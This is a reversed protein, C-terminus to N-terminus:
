VPMGVWDDLLLEMNIGAAPRLIRDRTFTRTATRDQDSLYDVPSKGDVRALMLIPLMSLARREFADLPEWEVCLKYASRFASIAATIRGRLSGFARAKLLLHTLCFAYDFAPDGYTACEADLVVVGRRGGVLINKPSFDGHVLAARANALQRAVESIRGGLDPHRHAVASFFPEIRLAEFHQHNQFRSAIDPQGATAGHLVALARGAAAAPAATDSGALLEAKWVPHDEAGLYEMAFARAKDDVALIKPAIGHIIRNAQRIWNVESENRDVSAFWEDAVKLKSLAQKYCFRSTDTDVLLIRSSVGGTLPHLLAERRGTLGMRALSAHVDAFDEHADACDM